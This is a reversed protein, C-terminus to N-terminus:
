CYINYLSLLIVMFAIYIYIYQRCFSSFQTSQIGYRATRHSSCYLSFVLSYLKSMNKNLKNERLIVQKGKRGRYHTIFSSCHILKTCLLLIFLTFGTEMGATHVSYYRCSPYVSRYVRSCKPCKPVALYPDPNPM